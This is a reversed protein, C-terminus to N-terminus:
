MLFVDGREPDIQIVSDLDAVQIFHRNEIESILINRLCLDRHVLHKEHLAAVGEVIQGFIFKVQELTLQPVKEIYGLLTGQNACISVRSGYSDFYIFPLLFSGILGVFQLLRQVAHALCVNNLAAAFEADEEFTKKSEENEYKKVIINESIAFVAPFKKQDKEISVLSKPFGYFEVANYTGKQRPLVEARTRPMVGMSALDEVQDKFSRLM